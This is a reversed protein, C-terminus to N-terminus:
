FVYCSKGYKQAAMFSSASVSIHVVIFDNDLLLVLRHHGVVLHLLLRSLAVRRVNPIHVAVVKWPTFAQEAANTKQAM